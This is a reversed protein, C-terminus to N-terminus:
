SGLPKFTKIYTKDYVNPVNKSAGEKSINKNGNTDIDGIDKPCWDGM